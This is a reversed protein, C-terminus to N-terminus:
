TKNIVGERAHGKEQYELGAEDLLVVQILFLAPCPNEKQGGHLM